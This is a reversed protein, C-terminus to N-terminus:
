PEYGIEQKLNGNEQDALLTIGSFLERIKSWEDNSFVLHGHFFAHGKPGSFVRVHTHFGRQAIYMRVELSKDM